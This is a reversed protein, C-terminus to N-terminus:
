DVEVFAEERKKRLAPLAVLVLLIAALALLTASLPRTVFTSFEGRSLLLARRFNEEMMPGLVLGLLLPAGECGLKSWVYGIIGFIAFMFIDFANYNLSYVGITCFVLIAPFLMRYPVRLLKVWIGILPLNLVVLMLNGIWMSAILGWFLEPHSSMVQPGPQINHITMAGVMLAMVANGPIGLTLLPIFSTQAGANNASEPGALGAPHGKGFREPEKSLKKELTYSAFASLVSGGGPLIGLASGLATGRVIAPAAERFEQRNPYLSGVKDTIEVRNEKLELNSMIESLGFVGMAVIAFDIGDQLEPISFDYRAVGSNVDTGVMGLLLGLLIMCIAKPLSGSALVVAGILGLAMLSFYEAPGFAFAVEALPPAFAAILVTAVSGAFFSGIAALSLAAGARGNRAMQHGDLVTVVASTEGPLNVLIATTSGGYQTGYYIGALMILGATPPLVYTIPLLMAITPVPGLGPLVGVLTGLLCGIFAYTLNEPTFAVSFGLMLNQLLEM